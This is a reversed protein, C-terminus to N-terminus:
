SRCCSACSPDFLRGRPPLKLHLRNGVVIADGIKVDGVRLLAAFTASGGLFSPLKRTGSLKDCRVLLGLGLFRPLKRTGGDQAAVGEAGAVGGTRLRSIFSGQTGTAIPGPPLLRVTGICGPPHLRMTGMCGSPTGTAIPGPPLLRVTGMRGPHLRVRGM